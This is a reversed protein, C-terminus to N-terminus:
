TAAVSPLERFLADAEVLVTEAEDLRGLDRVNEGLLHMTRGGPAAAELWAVADRFPGNRM